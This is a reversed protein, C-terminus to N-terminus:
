LKGSRPGLEPVRSDSSEVEIPCTQYSQAALAPSIAQEISDVIFPPITLTVDLPSSHQPLIPSTRSSAADKIQSAQARAVTGATKTTISSSM